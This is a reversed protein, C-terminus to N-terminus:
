SPGGAAVAGEMARVLELVERAWSEAKTALASEEPNLEAEGSESGLGSLVQASFRLDEAVARVQVPVPAPAGSQAVDVLGSAVLSEYMYRGFQRLTAAGGRPANVLFVERFAMRDKWSSQLVPERPPSM